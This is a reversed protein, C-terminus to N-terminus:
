QQSIFKRRAKLLGKMGKGSGYRGLGGRLKPDLLDRLADGLMNIGFVVLGLALGPWIALWPAMIMFRRGDISIMGGWSPAPPPIGFGLFSLTAESLIISGISISFVVIIPATVNPLIHKFITKWAPSGIAYAAQVYINTKVGIVASRIVRSYMIGAHFGLVLIVQM